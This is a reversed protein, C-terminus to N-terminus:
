SFVTVAVAGAVIITAAAGVRWTVRELRQLFVFSLVVVLLPSTQMIPTVVSVPAVELGAYFSVLFLTSAVGALLYWRFTPTGALSPEPLADRWWLYALLGVSAVGTKIALGVLFPTGEAFGIKAFTPEIGFFFAAGLPLLLNARSVDLDDAENGRAERSVLWVGAFILLIGAVHGATLTEGLVAVAVVTAFLPMSSKIPEARSAGVRKIGAYLLGRGVLTGLLGAAAFALVARTTLGYDPYALLAAAPLLLLLNVVVVVALADNSRGNATGLRIFMAQGAISLAAFAALAVGLGIVM